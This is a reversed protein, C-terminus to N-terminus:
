PADLGNRFIEDVNEYAGLDVHGALGRPNGEIDDAPLGGSPTLIGAGLLPSIDQLHYDGAGVFKPDVNIFNGTGGLGAIGDITTYDDNVFTTTEFGYLSFDKLSTGHNGYSITNSVYGTANSAGLASISGGVTTDTNDVITNNTLYFTGTTIYIYLASAPGSNGSFISNEVLVTGSGTIALGSGFYVIDVNARVVNSDFVLTSTAGTNNLAISAGGGTSGSVSGNQITLHRVTLDGKSGLSLVKTSGGGDLKTAGSTLDQVTCTGDWGGDLTLAASSLTGFTFPAAPTTFTGAAIHITNAQGDHAGGSGADTLASQLDAANQVCYTNAWAPASVAAAAVLTWTAIVHVTHHDSSYASRRFRGASEGCNM